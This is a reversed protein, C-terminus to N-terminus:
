QKGVHTDINDFSGGMNKCTFEIKNQEIKNQEIGDTRDIDGCMKRILKIPSSYRDIKSSKVSSTPSLPGTDM